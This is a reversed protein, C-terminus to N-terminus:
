TKPSDPSIGLILHALAMSESWPHLYIILSVRAGLGISPILSFSRLDLSGFNPWFIGGFIVFIFFMAARPLLDNLGFACSYQHLYSNVLHPLWGFMKGGKTLNPLDRV